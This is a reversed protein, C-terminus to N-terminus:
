VYVIKVLDIKEQDKKNLIFRRKYKLARKEILHWSLYGFVISVVVSLIMLEYTKLRLFFVLTQQIPFSYIYIGYSM